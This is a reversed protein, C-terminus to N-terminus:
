IDNRIEIDIGADIFQQATGMMTVYNGDGGCCSIDPNLSIFEDVEVQQDSLWKDINEIGDDNTECEAELLLDLRMMEDASTATINKADSKM